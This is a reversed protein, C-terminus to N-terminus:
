HNRGAGSPADLGACVAGVEDDDEEQILGPDATLPVPAMPITLQLLLQYARDWRHLADAHELVQRRVQWHTTRM